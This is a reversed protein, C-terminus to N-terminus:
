TESLGSMVSKFKKFEELMEPTLNMSMKELEKPSASLGLFIFLYAEKVSIGYKFLEKQNHKICTLRERKSRNELDHERVFEKCFDLNLESISKNKETAPLASALDLFALIVDFFDDM